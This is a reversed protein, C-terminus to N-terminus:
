RAKHVLGEYVYSAEALKKYLERYVVYASVMGAM